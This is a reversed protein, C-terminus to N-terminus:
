TEQTLFTAFHEQIAEARKAIASWKGFLGVYAVRSATDDGLHILQWPVEVMLLKLIADTMSAEALPPFAEKATQKLLMSIVMPSEHVRIPLTPAMPHFLYHSILWPKLSAGVTMRDWQLDNLFAHPGLFADNPLEVADHEYVTCADKFARRNARAWLGLDRAFQM